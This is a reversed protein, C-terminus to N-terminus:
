LDVRLQSHFAEIQEIHFVTLYIVEVSRAQGAFRGGSNVVDVEM